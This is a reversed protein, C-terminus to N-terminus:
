CGRRMGWVVNDRNRPDIFWDIVGFAASYYRTAHPLSTTDHESGPSDGDNVTQPGINTTIEPQGLPLTQLEHSDDTVSDNVLSDPFRIAFRGM